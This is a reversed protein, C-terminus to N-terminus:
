RDRSCSCWSTPSEPTSPSSSTRWPVWSLVRDILVHCHPAGKPALWRALECPEAPLALM